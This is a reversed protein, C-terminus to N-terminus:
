SRSKQLVSKARAAVEAASQIRDQVAPALMQVCLEDVTHPV